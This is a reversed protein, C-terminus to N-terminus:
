TTEYRYFHLITLDIDFLITISVCASLALFFSVLHEVGNFLQTLLSLSQEATPRNFKLYDRLNIHYRKMVLFLTMNRGYGHEHLRPPLANKFLERARPLEPIQDVLVGYMTVINPHAPLKTRGLKGTLQDIESGFSGNFPICERNMSRYIADANSEADYNFLMKIALKENKFMGQADKLRAEYIAANCGTQQSLDVFNLKTSNHIAVGFITSKVKASIDNSCSTTWSSFSM